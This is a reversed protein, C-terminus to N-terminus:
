WCTRIQHQVRRIRRRKDGSSSWVPRWFGCPHFSKSLLPGHRCPTRGTLHGEELRKLSDSSIFANGLSTHHYMSEYTYRVEEPWEPMNDQTQTRIGHHYLLTESTMESIADLWAARLEAQQQNRSAPHSKEGLPWDSQLELTSNEVNSARADFSCLWLNHQFFRNTEKTLSCTCVFPRKAHRRQVENNNLM